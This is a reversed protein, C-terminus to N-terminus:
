ASEGERGRKRRGETGREWGGGGGERELQVRHQLGHLIGDVGVVHGVDDEIVKLYTKL